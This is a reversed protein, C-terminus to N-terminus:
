PRSRRTRAWTTAARAACGGRAASSPGAATRAPRRPRTPAGGRTLCRCGHPVFRDARSRACPRSRTRPAATSARDQRRPVPVLPPPDDMDGRDQRDSQSKARPLACSPSCRRRRRRDIVLPTFEVVEMAAASSGSSTTSRQRTGAHPGWWPVDPRRRGGIAWDVDDTVADLVTPIDGRGFAEYVSQVTKVNDDSSMPLGRRSRCTPSENAARDRRRIVALKAGISRSSRSRACM